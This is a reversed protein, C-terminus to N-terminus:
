QPGDARETILVTLASGGPGSIEQREAFQGADQAIQKELERLERLLGTDVHYEEVQRANPGTGISKYQRVLLGTSGGPIIEGDENTAMQQGREDIVQMMLAHRKEYGAMRKDLRGLGESRVREQIEAVHQSVREQFEPHKKWTALTKRVIGVENAIEDDSLKDEACLFAAASRNATWDYTSERTYNQTAPSESM